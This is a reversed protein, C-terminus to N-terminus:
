PLEADGGHAAPVERAALLQENNEGKLYSMCREYLSAEMDRCENQCHLVVESGFGRFKVSFVVSNRFDICPDMYKVCPAEVLRTAFPSNYRQIHNVVDAFERLNMPRSM